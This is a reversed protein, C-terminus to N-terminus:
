CHPYVVKGYIKTESYETIPIPAYAKNHSVLYAGTNDLRYEKVYANGDLLFIGVDGNELTPQQHVWIEQGDGLTPEMSDGCVHLGFTASDPVYEPVTVMEYSSSDLFQGTGASPRVDYMAATRSPFPIIHEDSKVPSYFGSAILVRRYDEVKEVGERTLSSEVEAVNGQAFVRYVDKVGYIHCLGVFQDINPNNIGTEWRSVQSTTTPMDMDNLKDAIQNQQFGHQKRLVRLMESYKKKM